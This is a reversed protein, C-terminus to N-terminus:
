IKGDSTSKPTFNHPSKDTAANYWIDKVGGM